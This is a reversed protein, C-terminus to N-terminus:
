EDDIAALRETLLRECHELQREREALASVVSDPLGSLTNRWQATFVIRTAGILRQSAQAM